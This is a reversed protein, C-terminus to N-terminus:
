RMLVKIQLDGSTFKLTHQGNPNVKGYIAQQKGWKGIPINKTVKQARKLLWENLAGEVAVGEM